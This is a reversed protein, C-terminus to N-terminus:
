HSPFFEPMERKHPFTHVSVQAIPVLIPTYGGRKLANCIAVCGVPICHADSILVFGLYEEERLRLFPFRLDWWSRLRVTLLISVKFM